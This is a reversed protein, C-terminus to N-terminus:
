MTCVSWNFHIQRLVSGAVATRKLADNSTSESLDIDFTQNGLRERLEDLEGDLQLVIEATTSGSSGAHLKELMSGMTTVLDVFARLGSLPTGSPTDVGSSATTQYVVDFVDADYDQHKILPPQNDLASLYSYINAWGNTTCRSNVSVDSFYVYLYLMARRRTSHKDYKVRKNVHLDRPIRRNLSLEHAMMIARAVYDRSRRGMSTNSIFTHLLFLAQVATESPQDM